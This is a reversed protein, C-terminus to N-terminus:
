LRRCASLPSKEQVANAAVNRRAVEVNAECLELGCVRHVAPIRAAAIACPLRDAKM